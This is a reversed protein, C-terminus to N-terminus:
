SEAASRQTREPQRQARRSFTINIREVDSSGHRWRGAGGIRQYRLADNGERKRGRRRRDMAGAFKIM